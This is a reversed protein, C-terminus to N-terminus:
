DIDIFNIGIKKNMQRYTVGNSDFLIKAFTKYVYKDSLYVVKKIGSHIIAKACNECPFLTVYITCDFNLQADSTGRPYTHRQFEYDDRKWLEGNYGTGVIVMINNVICAGVQNDPNRSLKATLVAQAMFYEDWDQCLTRRSLKSTSRTREMQGTTLVLSKDDDCGYPLGNYGVGVIKKENNVICAGVQLNPDKSREASLLAIGM